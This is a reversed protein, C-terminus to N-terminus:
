ILEVLEDITFRECKDSTLMGEVIKEHLNEGPQIGIIKPEIYVGGNYKQYMARLLDEIKVSKMEPCFPESSIANDLCDFILDIAQDVTWYFRTAEMDTVICPEGNQILDKWKCLVSGTSYLVNGYRVIRYDCGPNLSEYQRFLSEMLMKSAGYTGSVRCAKDTSIGIVFDVDYKLSFDLVNLSGITNSKICERSFKEALGVHKFAALHFVGDVGLFAQNVEFVDSVDGPFIDISDYKQKLEFLSGEDRSMARVRGGSSLIRGVLEEGLFGSGGTVLYLKGNEIKM